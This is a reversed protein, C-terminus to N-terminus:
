RKKVGRGHRKLKTPACGEHTWEGPRGVRNQSKFAIFEGAKMPKGCKYCNGERGTALQVKLAM